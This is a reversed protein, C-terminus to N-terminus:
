CNKDLVATLRSFWKTSNVHTKDGMRTMWRYVASDKRAQIRAFRNFVFTVLVGLIIVIYLQVDPSAGLRYSLYWLAIILLNIMIEVLTIGLHSFHLDILLHHLHNKDPSFPSVGKLMRSTMVRLTDFVPVSLVALTFAVVGFNSPAFAAIASDTKLTNIVFSSMIIGMLLAGGDGIFMKSKVGFVNHFFFPILSGISLIALAAQFTDGALIFALGFICCTVISYGSSLGDVGDIMNIANIIGVCAFATLPVAVWPSLSHVGWLGHFDDISHGNCYVFLVVVLVEVLFRFNPPLTFMDDMTGLFLMITMVGLVVFLNTIDFFLLSAAFAMVMGFFVAAGGLVPVPVRQLKRSNPNDVINKKRALKLVKKFIWWTACLSVLFLTVYLTIQKEMTNNHLKLLVLIPCGFISEGPM